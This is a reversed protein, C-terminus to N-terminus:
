PINSARGDRRCRGDDRDGDGFDFFPFTTRAPSTCAVKAVARGAVPPVVAVAVMGVLEDVPVVAGADAGAPAVADAAAGRLVRGFVALENGRRPSTLINNTV